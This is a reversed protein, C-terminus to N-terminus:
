KQQKDSEASNATLSSFSAFDRIKTTKYAIRHIERINFLKGQRCKQYLSGVNKSERSKNGVTNIKYWKQILKTTMMNM